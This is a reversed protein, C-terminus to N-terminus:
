RAMIRAGLYGIFATSSLAIGYKLYKHNNQYFLQSQEM